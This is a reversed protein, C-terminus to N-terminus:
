AGTNKLLGRWDVPKAGCEIRIKYEVGDVNWGQRQEMYPRRQGNLYYMRVTKGKRAALYWATESSDDLRADFVMQFRGAHPNAGNGAAVSTGSDLTVTMPVRGEAFFRRAVEELAVPALFFVPQINLRRKGGIDTQRRMAQVATGIGAITTEFDSYSIPVANTTALLNGHASHFLAKGDGMTPNGTIAGYALDGLLRSASEGHQRPIDTMAGLDDNIIAERTISFMKGYKAIQYQEFTETREGYKYEGGEPIRELDGLEGPRAMTHIKFDSVSGSDDVWVRWSEPEQEWGSMLSLNAVSGLLVPLDSTTLARGVMEMANGKSSQGARELSERALERLSYGRFDEAGPTVKDLTIGARLCVGDRAAERFKERGEQGVEVSATELEKRQDALADLVAKRVQDVNAGSRVYEAPDVEFRACMSMIESVREREAARAQEELKATDVVEVHNEVARVEETEPTATEVVNKPMEETREQEEIEEYGRGIGVSDDAPISVPSIELPEWLRAIECPGDFRGCSSKQGPEVVEWRHVRYGVSVGKITGSRVKQFIRDSEPDDDFRVVARGKRDEGVWAREISGIPVDSNHNWLVVGTERLRSLQIEEEGHGLIEVGYWRSVPAESSFSLEVTRSGEDIAGSEIVAQRFQLDDRKRSGQEAKVKKTAM